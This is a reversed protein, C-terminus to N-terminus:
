LPHHETQGHVRRADPTSRDGQADGAVQRHHEGRFEFSGHSQRGAAGPECHLGLRDPRLRRRVRDPDRPDGAAARRHGSDFHHVDCRAAPCGARECAGANTRSQWACFSLRHPCQAGGVVWAARAGEPIGRPAGESGSRRRRLECPRRHAADARSAARAGSRGVFALRPRRAASSRSSREGGSTSWPLKRGQGAGGPIGVPRRGTARPRSAADWGAM